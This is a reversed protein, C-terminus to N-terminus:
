QINHSSCIHSFEGKGVNVNREVGSAVLIMCKINIKENWKVCVYIAM